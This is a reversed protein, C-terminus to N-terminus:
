AGVGLLPSEVVAAAERDVDGMLLLDLREGLLPGRQRRERGCRSQKESGASPQSFPELIHGGLRNNLEVEGGNLDPAATLM